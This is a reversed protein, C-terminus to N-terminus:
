LIKQLERRYKAHVSVCDGDDYWVQSIRDVTDDIRVKDDKYPWAQFFFVSSFGVQSSRAVKISQKLQM